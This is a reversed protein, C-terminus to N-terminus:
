PHCWSPLGGGGGWINRVSNTLDQSLQDFRLMSRSSNTLNAGGGGGGDCVRPAMGQKHYQM